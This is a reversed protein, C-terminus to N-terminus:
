PIRAATQTATMRTATSALYAAFFLVMLSDIAVAIGVQQSVYRTGESLVLAIFVAKSAGSVVLVLGRVAPRFAGYLLMGGVLAILAGWNRVIINALPGDVTEGFNSQLAAQPAVAAYVMTTTLVGSVIMIWKIHKVILAM